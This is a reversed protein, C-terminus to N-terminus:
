MLRCDALNKGLEYNARAAFDRWWEVPKRFPQTLERYREIDKETLGYMKALEEDTHEMVGLLRV